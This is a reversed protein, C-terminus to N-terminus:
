APMANIIPRHMCLTSSHYVHNDEDFAHEYNYDACESKVEHDPWGHLTEDKSSIEKSSGHLPVQLENLVKGGGGFSVKAGKIGSTYLTGEGSGERSAM